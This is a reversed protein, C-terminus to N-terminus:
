GMRAAIGLARLREVLQRGARVDPAALGEVEYEMGLAAYKPQGLHHMPLVEVSLETRTARLEGLFAAMKDQEPGDDNCGRVLPIRILLGAQNEAALLLHNLIASNDGGTWHRHRRPTWCKFDCILLDVAGFFEPLRRDAGNTELATHVGAARLRRLAELVESAQLTPEGGGFTVGGDPGFLPRRRLVQDVVHDVSLTEGALAFAPNRWLRVCPRDACRACVTRDLRWGAGQQSVAGRPCARDPADARDPTFLVQPEPALSEPNACWRCRLNCGKLYLVWRRGPGDFGNSWGTAFLNM